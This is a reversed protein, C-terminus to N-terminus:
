RLEKRPTAYMRVSAPMLQPRAAEIARPPAAEIAPPEPKVVSVDVRKRPQPLPARRHAHFEAVAANWRRDDARELTAEIPTRVIAALGILTLFLLGVAVEAFPLLLPWFAPVCFCM